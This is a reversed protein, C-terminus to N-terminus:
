PGFLREMRLRTIRKQEGAAVRLESAPDNRMRERLMSLIEGASRGAACVIFVHGFRSEYERNAEALAAREAEAAGDVRAQEQSSMGTAGASIGREAHREGIRPHHRFAERWDDDTLDDGAADAAAFIADATAFPRAAAMRGTWAPAGCFDGLVAHAEPTDLANIQTLAAARRAEALPTGFM